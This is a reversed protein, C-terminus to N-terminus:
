GLQNWYDVHFALPIIRADNIQAYTGLVDDAAPCSSCGQSTFLEMVVFGNSNGNNRPTYSHNINSAVIILLGSTVIFASINFLINKM